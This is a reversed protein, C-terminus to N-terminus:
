PPAKSFYKGPLQKVIGKLELSLLFSSIAHAPLEVQRALDDIHVPYADLAAAVRQEEPPLTSLRTEVTNAAIPIPTPEQLMPSLEELIDRTHEVLKAGQKILFHTGSSKFSQVSGPVAFVERNQEVALRATILSGSKKAAEVVVTGLSMGSIIRNRAPFHHPDPDAHLPFESIVAGNEAIRNSLSINEPPYIRELGSGLVAVTLGDGALAGQHAATDIGVAMGSVVSWGLDALDRCLRRTMQLGYSTAHRSGVISICRRIVPLKGRVYLYPPPDAIEKLLVPYADDTLTVIRYGKELALSLEGKVKDSTRFSPIVRALRKNVGEVDGLEEPTANLVRNPSGFRDVLRKFLLNGVGPVSKLSLWPLLNQEIQNMTIQLHYYNM